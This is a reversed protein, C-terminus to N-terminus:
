LMEALIKAGVVASEEKVGVIDAASLNKLLRLRRLFYLLERTTMGGPENVDSYAFAPDLVSVDISVYLAPFDKAAAIVADKERM